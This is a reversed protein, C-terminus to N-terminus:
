VKLSVMDQLDFCFQNRKKKELNTFLNNLLDYKGACKACITKTDIANNAICENLNNNFKLFENTTNSFKKTMNGGVWEYCDQFIIYLIM